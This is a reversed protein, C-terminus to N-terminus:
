KLSPIQDKFLQYFETTTVCVIDDAETMMKILEELRGYADHVDLEYGHGWVFFLMDETCETEIFSQAYAMLDDDVISCTPEWMLFEEPLAFSHTATIGRAFRISTDEYVIKKTTETVDNDSCPWAMGVPFVGTIRYINEADNEVEDRIVWRRSDYSKLSPHTLTHVAVDFGDYVGSELEKRTFRIHTVDPRDFMGGVWYWNAGCLGTNIFFTCSSFGYKRFIEMIKLDQTIGDDFCITFYKTHTEAPAAEADTGADPETEEAEEAPPDSEAAAGPEEGPSAEPAPEPTAESVRTEAPASTESAPAGCACLSQLLSIILIFATLKKM